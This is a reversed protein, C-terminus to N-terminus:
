EAKLGVGARFQRGFDFVAARAANDIAEGWYGTGSDNPARAITTIEVTQTLGNAYALRVTARISCSAGTPHDALIRRPDDKSAFAMEVKNPPGDSTGSSRALARERDEANARAMQQTRMAPNPHPGNSFDRFKSGSDTVVRVLRFSSVVVEVREPKQPMAAVVANTEEALQAWADPHAKGLHYLCVVGTFPKKEWEPRQDTIQVAVGGVNAPPPLNEPPAPYYQPGTCGISAACVALGAWVGRTM